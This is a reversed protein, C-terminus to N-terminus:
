FIDFFNNCCIDVFCRSNSIFSGWLSEFMSCANGAAPWMVNFRQLAGIECSYLSVLSSAIYLIMAINSVTSPMTGKDVACYLSKVESPKRVSLSDFVISTPLSTQLTLHNSSTTWQTDVTSGFGDSHKGTNATTMIVVSALTICCFLSDNSQQRVMGVQCCHMMAYPQNVMWVIDWSHVAKVHRVVSHVDFAKGLSCLGIGKVHCLVNRM